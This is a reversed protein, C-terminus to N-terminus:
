QNEQVEAYQLGTAPLEKEDFLPKNNELVLRSEAYWKIVLPYIIHEQELVKNALTEATDDTKVPVSSQLVIPGGDVETTVFHVSAGHQEVGSELAREHTNLGPFDPLLAPHINLLQGSYHEVFQSTLIRMFGALVVLSPQYSDIRNMLEQDFAERGDFQKHDIVLTEIGAANARQLGKVDPRNSIVARINFPCDNENSANIIAQLNSGSGSILIVVQMPTTTAM